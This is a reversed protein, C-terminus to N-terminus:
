WAMKIISPRKVLKKYYKRHSTSGRWLCLCDTFWRHSKQPKCSANAQSCLLLQPLHTQISCSHTCTPPCPMNMRLGPLTVALPSPLAPIPLLGQTLHAAARLEGGYRLCSSRRSAATSSSLGNTPPHFSDPLM